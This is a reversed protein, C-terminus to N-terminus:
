DASPQAVPDTRREAADGGPQRRVVFVTASTDLVVEDRQNVVILALRVIGLTPRSRSERLDLVKLRLRLRDGPRVPSPLEIAELGPSGAAVTQLAWGRVLLRSMIAATHIGSAVLGGYISRKAAEPDTHFSQPDWSAAFELIEEESVVHPGYEGREGVALDEFYRM